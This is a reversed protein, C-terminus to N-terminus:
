STSWTHGIAQSLAEPSRFDGTLILVRTDFQNASKREFGSLVIRTDASCTRLVGCRASLAFPFSTIVDGPLAVEGPLSPSVMKLPPVTRRRCGM